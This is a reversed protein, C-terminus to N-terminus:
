HLKVNNLGKNETVRPVPVNMFSLVNRFTKWNYSKRQSRRNLWKFTQEIVQSYFSWVARSNGVVYYYNYHGVLKRKLTDFFNHKPLHRKKKIWDKILQVKALQKKRATWRKIRAIGRQDHWWYFEFGLFAFIQDQKSSTHFRSFRLIKAKSPEVELNFKVLRKPMTRYFREADDRYQFGCGTMPM